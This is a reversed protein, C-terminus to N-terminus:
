VAAAERCRASQVPLTRRATTTSVGKGKLSLLVGHTQLGSMWRCVSPLGTMEEFLLMHAVPMYEALCTTPGLGAPRFARFGGQGLDRKPACCPFQQGESIPCGQSLCKLWGLCRWKGSKPPDSLNACRCPCPTTGLLLPATLLGTPPGGPRLREPSM